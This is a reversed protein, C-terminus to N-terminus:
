SAHARERPVRRLRLRFRILDHYALGTNILATILRERMDADPGPGRLHQLTLLQERTMLRKSVAESARRFGNRDNWGM